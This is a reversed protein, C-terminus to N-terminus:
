KPEVLRNFAILAGMVLTISIGFYLTALPEMWQVMHELFTLEM